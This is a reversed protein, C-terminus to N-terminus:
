YKKKKFERKIIKEYESPNLLNAPLNILDRALFIGDLETQCNQILKSPFTKLSNLNLFKNKDKKKNFSFNYFSLGWGILFNYIDINLFNSSFYIDWNKNKLNKAIKSSTDITSKRHTSSPKLITISLLLDNDLEPKTFVEGIKHNEYFYQKDKKSIIKKKVLEDLNDVVYLTSNKKSSNNSFGYFNNNLSYLM